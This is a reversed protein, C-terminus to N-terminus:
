HFYKFNLLGPMEQDNIFLMKHNHLVSGKGYIEKFIFVSLYGIPIM